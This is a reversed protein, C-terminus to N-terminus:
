VFWRPLQVGRKIISSCISRYISSKWIQWKQTSLTCHRLEVAVFSCLQAHIKSFNEANMVNIYLVHRFVNKPTILLDLKVCGLRDLTQTIEQIRNFVIISLDPNLFVIGFSILQWNNILINSKLLMFANLLKQWNNGWKRYIYIYICNTRQGDDDIDDDDYM